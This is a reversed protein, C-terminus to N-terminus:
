GPERSGVAELAESPDSFGRRRVIKGGRLDYVEAHVEDMRLGSASRGRERLFVVVRDSGADVIREADVTWEDWQASWRTLHEIIAEHGRGVQGDPLNTGDWEVDPAFFSLATEFDARLFADLTRRVAEVNEGSTSSVGGRLGAQGLVPDPHLDHGM